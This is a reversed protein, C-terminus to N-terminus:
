FFFKNSPKSSWLIGHPGRGTCLLTKQNKAVLLIQVRIEVAFDLACQPAWVCVCVCDITNSCQTANENWLSRVEFRAYKVNWLVAWVCFVGVWACTRVCVCVSKLSSHISCFDSFCICEHTELFKKMNLIFLFGLSELLCTFLLADSVVLLHRCEQASLGSLFCFMKIFHSCLSQRQAIVCDGLRSAPHVWANGPRAKYLENYNILITLIVLLFFQWM